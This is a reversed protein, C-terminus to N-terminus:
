IKRRLYVHPLLLLFPAALAMHIKQELKEKKRKKFNM